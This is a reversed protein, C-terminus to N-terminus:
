GWIFIEFLIRSIVKIVRSICEIICFKSTLIQTTYFNLICLILFLDSMNRIKHSWDDPLVSSHKVPIVHLPECINQRTNPRHKAAYNQVQPTHTYTVAPWIMCVCWLNLIVSGCVSLVCSLISHIVVLLELWACSQVGHHNIVYSGFCTLTIKLKIDKLSKYLTSKLM